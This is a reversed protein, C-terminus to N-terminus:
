EETEEEIEEDPLSMLVQAELAAAIREQTAGAAAAAEAEKLAAEAAAVAQEDEFVEITNLFDEDTECESFDCGMQEIRKVFGTFEYLLAGNVVDGSIVTKIGEVGAIPHKAIWQEPTFVEGSPTIIADQKNWIQYRAM